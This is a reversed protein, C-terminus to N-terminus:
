VISIEVFSEVLFAKSAGVLDLSVCPSFICNIYSLTSFVNFFILLFLTGPCSVSVVPM